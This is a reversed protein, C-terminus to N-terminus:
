ECLHVSIMHFIQLHALWVFMSKPSVHSIVNINDMKSKIEMKLELVLDHCINLWSTPLLLLTKFSNLHCCSKDETESQLRKALDPKTLLKNNPIRSMLHEPFQAGSKCSCQSVDALIWMFSLVLCLMTHRDGLICFIMYSFHILFFICMWIVIVVHFCHSCQAFGLM